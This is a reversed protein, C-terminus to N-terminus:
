RLNFVSGSRNVDAEHLQGIFFTLYVPLDYCNEFPQVKSDASQPSFTVCYCGGDEIRRQNSLPQIPDYYVDLGTGSTPYVMISVWREIDYWYWTEIIDEQHTDEVQVDKTCAYPVSQTETCSYTYSESETCSYTYSEYGGCEYSESGGNGDDQYCTDSVYESGTCTTQVDRYDTCTTQVQEDRYCTDPVTETHWGDHVTREGSKRQEQATERGASNVGPWEGPISWGEEHVTQYEEIHVSQSWNMDTVVLTEVHTKFFFNYVWLSIICLFAAALVGGGIKLGTKITENRADLDAQDEYRHAVPESQDMAPLLSLRERKPIPLVVPTSQPNYVDDEPVFPEPTLHDSTKEKAEADETSYALGKKRTSYGVRVPQVASDATRADGCNWCKKDKQLNGSQCSDCFWNPNPATMKSIEAPTAEHPPNSHYFVVGKSRPHGCGPCNYVYGPIKKNSDNPCDWYMVIKAM